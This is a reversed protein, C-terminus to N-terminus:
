RVGECLGVGLSPRIVDRLALEPPVAVCTSLHQACSDVLITVEVFVQRFYLSDQEHTHPEYQLNSYNSAKVRKVVIRCTTIM